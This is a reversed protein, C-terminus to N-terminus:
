ETIYNRIATIEELMKNLKEASFDKTGSVGDYNKFYNELKGAIEKLEANNDYEKLLDNINALHVKAEWIKNFLLENKKNLKQNKLHSLSLYQSEVWSGIMVKAAVDLHHDTQCFREISHYVNDLVAELSDSNKLNEEFHGNKIVEEFVSLVGAKDAMKRTVAFRKMIDSNSAFSAAYSLDTSYVGYNLATKLVTNYKSENEVSLCLSEDYNFGSKQVAIIEHAPSPINALVTFFKFEKEADLSPTSVTDSVSLTDKVEINEEPKNGSGCSTFVSTLIGLFSILITKKM